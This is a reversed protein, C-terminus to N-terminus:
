LLLNKWCIYKLNLISILTLEEFDHSYDLAKQLATANFFAIETLIQDEFLLCFNHIRSESQGTFAM